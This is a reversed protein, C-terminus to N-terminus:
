NSPAPTHAVAWAGGKAQVFLFPKVAERDATRGVKGLLGETQKRAALGERM